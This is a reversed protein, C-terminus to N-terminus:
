NAKSVSYEGDADRTVKYRGSNCEVSWMDHGARNISQVHACPFSASRIVAAMTGYDPDAAFSNASFTAVMCAILVNLRLRLVYNSFFRM